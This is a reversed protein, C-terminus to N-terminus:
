DPPGRGGGSQIRVDAPSTWAPPPMEPWRRRHRSAAFRILRDARAGGAHATNRSPSPRWGPASGDPQGRVRRRSRVARHRPDEGATSSSCSSAWGASCSSRPGPPSMPGGASRRTSSRSASRGCSRRAGNSSSSIRWPRPSSRTPSSRRRAARNGRRDAYHEDETDDERYRESASFLFWNRVDTVFRTWRRDAETQGERGRFRQIIRSWKCSSRSPTSTM